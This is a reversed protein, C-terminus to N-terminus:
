SGGTILERRRIEKLCSGPLVCVLSIFLSAVLVSVHVNVPKLHWFVQLSDSVVAQMTDLCVVLIQASIFYRSVICELQSVTFAWCVHATHVTQTSFLWHPVGLLQLSVTLVLLDIFRSLINIFVCIHVHVCKKFLM